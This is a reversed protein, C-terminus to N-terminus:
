GTKPSGGLFDMLIAPCQAERLGLFPDRFFIRVKRSCSFHISKILHYLARDPKGDGTFRRKASRAAWVRGSFDRFASACVRMKGIENNEGNRSFVYMPFFTNENARRAPERFTWSSQPADSRDARGSGPRFRDRFASFVWLGPHKRWDTLRAQGVARREHRAGPKEVTRDVLSGRPERSGGATPELISGM